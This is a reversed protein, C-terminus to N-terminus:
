KTLMIWDEIDISNFCDNRSWVSVMNDPINPLYEERYKDEVDFRIPHNFLDKYETLIEKLQNKYHIGINIGDLKYSLGNHKSLLLGNTYLYLKKSVGRTVNHKLDVVMANLDKKSFLLPEGGTICVTHYKRWEIEEWKRYEFRKNIEPINNCCYKCNM